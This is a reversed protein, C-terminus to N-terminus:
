AAEGEEMLKKGYDTFTYWSTHDFKSINFDAKKIINKKRLIKVARKAMHISMFPYEGTMMLHSCRVWFHNFRCELMEHKHVDNILEWLHEAIIAANVGCYVAINNRFKAM